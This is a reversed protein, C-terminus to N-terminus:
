VGKEGIYRYIVDKQEGCQYTLKLMPGMVKRNVLKCAPEPTTPRQVEKTTSCGALLGFVAILKYNM